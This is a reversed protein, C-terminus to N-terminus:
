QIVPIVERETRKLIKRFLRSIGCMLLCLATAMLIGAVDVGLDSLGAKRDITIFQLTETSIAFQILGAIVFLINTAYAYKGTPAWRLISCFALIMFLIFHGGRHARNIWIYDPITSLHIKQKKAFPASASREKAVPRLVPPANGSRSVPHEIKKKVNYAKVVAVNIAGNLVKQPLLVGVIITLACFMAVIGSLTKWPELVILCVALATMWLIFFFLDFVPASPQQMVPVISVNDVALDGKTGLNQIQLEGVVANKPVPFVSAYERWGMDRTISFIEHSLNFLGKGKQDRFFFVARPIYWNQSGKQINRAAARVAVKFAPVSKVGAVTMKLIGHHKPSTNLVVGGSRKFGGDSDLHVLRNNWGTWGNTCAPTEFQGDAVRNPGIETWPDYVTFFLGMAGVTLVAFLAAFRM